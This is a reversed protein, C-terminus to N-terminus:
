SRWSHLSNVFIHKDGLSETGVQLLVFGWDSWTRSRREHRRQEQNRTDVLFLILRHMESASFYGVRTILIIQMNHDTDIGM